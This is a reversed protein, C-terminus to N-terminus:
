KGLVFHWDFSLLLAGSAREPGAKEPDDWRLLGRGGLWPGEAGATIPFGVGLSLELGRRDGFNRGEPERFFVGLALSISDLVLDGYRSTGELGNSWRPIFAPTLDVGFGLTRASRLSTNGFGDAYEVYVGATSFYRLSGRAAPTVGSPELETGVGIGLDFFGDFRGYVGDRGNRANGSHEDRLRSTTAEGPDWTPAASANQEGRAQVEAHALPPRASLVGLTAAMVSVVPSTRM